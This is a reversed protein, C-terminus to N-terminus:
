SESAQPSPHSPVNLELDPTFGAQARGMCPNGPQCDFVVREESGTENTKEMSDRENTIVCVPSMMVPPLEPRLEVGSWM